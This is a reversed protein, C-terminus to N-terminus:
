NTAEIADKGTEQAAREQDEPHQILKGHEEDEIHNADGRSTASAILRDMFVRSEPYLAKEQEFSAIAVDTKGSKLMIFGYEAHVGPPVALNKVRSQEIITELTKLHAASTAECPKKMEDYYTQSYDGWYFIGQKQCGALSLVLLIIGLSIHMNKM